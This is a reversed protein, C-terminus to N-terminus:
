DWGLLEDKTEDTVYELARLNRHDAYMFAKKMNGKWVATVFDGGHLHYEHSMDDNYWREVKERIINDKDCVAMLAYTDSAGLEDLEQVVKVAELLGIESM